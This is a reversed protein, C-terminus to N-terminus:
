DGSGTHIECLTGTHQLIKNTLKVVWDWFDTTFAGELGHTMVNMIWIISGKVERKFTSSAQRRTLSRANLAVARWHTGFASEWIKWLAPAPIM